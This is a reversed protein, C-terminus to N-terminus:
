SRSRMRGGALPRDAAIQVIEAHELAHRLDAFAVYREEMAAGLVIQDLNGPASNSGSLRSLARDRLTGSRTKALSLRNVSRTKALSLGM